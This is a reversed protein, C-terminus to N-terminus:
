HICSQNATGFNNGTWTNRDCAPNRDYMDGAQNAKVYNNDVLNGRSVSEILVGNTTNRVIENRRLTIREAHFLYFGNGRTAGTGNDASRNGLFVSNLARNITVGHARNHHFNNGVISDNKSPLLDGNAWSSNLALGHLNFRSTVGQVKSYTVQELSIGIAFNQVVGPGEIDVRAVGGHFNTAAGVNIGYASNPGGSITHGNLFLVVDSAFIEIGHGPCGTLDQTVAYSGPITIVTGCTTISTATAQVSLSNLPDLEPNPSAPEGCAFLTLICAPILRNAIRVPRSM